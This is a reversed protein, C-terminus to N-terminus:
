GVMRRDRLRDQVLGELGTLNAAPDTGAKRAQALAAAAAELPHDEAVRALGGLFQAVYDLTPGDHDQGLLAAIHAIDDQYALADPPESPADAPLARLGAPQMTDPLHSLILQQFAALSDVPKALFGDAGADMALEAAGDDGSTGLLVSVRPAAKMLTQILETGSGDPLGMDVIAVTPCYSRLHRKASALCDARRIRAGSRLCMLRMAESAFRSDEVLLVTHGMLPRERTPRQGVIMDGFNM